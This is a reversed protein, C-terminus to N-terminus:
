TLAACGWLMSYTPFVYSNLVRKQMTCLHVCVATAQMRAQAKHKQEEFNCGGRCPCTVQGSHILGAGALSQLGVQRLQHEHRGRQEHRQQGPRQQLRRQGWAQPGRQCQHQQAAARHNGAFGIGTSTGVSVAAHCSAVAPHHGPPWRRSSSYPWRCQSAAVAATCCSPCCKHQRGSGCM